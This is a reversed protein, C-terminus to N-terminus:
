RTENTSNDKSPMRNLKNSSLVSSMLQKKTHFNANRGGSGFFFRLLSLYSPRLLHPHLIYAHMIVVMSSMFLLVEFNRIHPLRGKAVLNRYASPIAQALVYLALELRRSRKEISVMLGGFFGALAGNFHTQTGIYSNLICSTKWCTACYM